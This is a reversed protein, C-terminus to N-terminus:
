SPEPQPAPPVRDKSVTLRFAEDEQRRGDFHIVVERGGPLGAASIRQGSCRPFQGNVQALFIVSALYAAVDEERDPAPFDPPFTPPILEAWGEPHSRERRKWLPM